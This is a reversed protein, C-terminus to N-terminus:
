LSADIPQSLVIRRAEALLLRQEVADAVADDVAPSFRLKALRHGFSVLAPVGSPTIRGHAPPLWPAMIGAIREAAQGAGLPATLLTQELAALQHLVERQQRDAVEAGPRNRRGYAWMGGGAVVVVVLAGAVGGLRSLVLQTRIPAAPKLEHLAARRPEPTFQVSFAETLLTDSIAGRLVPVPWPGLHYRAGRTATFLILHEMGGAARAATRSQLFILSETRAILSDARRWDAVADGPGTLHLRLTLPHGVVVPGAPVTLAVAAAQATASAPVLGLMVPIVFARASSSM